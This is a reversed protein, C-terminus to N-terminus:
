AVPTGTTTRGIFIGYGDAHKLEEALFWLRSGDDLWITPHHATGGSSLEDSVSGPDFSVIRKGVIERASVMRAM